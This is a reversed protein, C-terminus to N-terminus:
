KHMIYVLRLRKCFLDTLFKHGNVIFCQICFLFFFNSINTTLLFLAYHIFKKNIGIDTKIKEIVNKTSNFKIGQTVYMVIYFIVNENLITIKNLKVFLTFIMM